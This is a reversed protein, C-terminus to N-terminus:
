MKHFLFKQKKRNGVETMTEKKEPTNTFPWKYTSIFFGLDLVSLHVALFGHQDQTSFSSFSLSEAM